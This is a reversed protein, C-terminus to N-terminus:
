FLFFIINYNFYFKRKYAFIKNEVSALYFSVKNLCILTQLVDIIYIGNREGYIYSSLSPNYKKIAHGLHVSNVLFSQLEVM